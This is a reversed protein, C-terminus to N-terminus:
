TRDHCEEAKSSKELNLMNIDPEENLYPESVLTQIDLLRRNIDAIRHAESEIIKLRNKTREDLDKNKYLLYEINGTIVSLPNNIEHNISVALQKAVMLREDSIKQEQAKELQKRAEILASNKNELQKLYIMREISLAMQTGLISFLKIDKNRFAQNESSIYVVVGILVDEVALPVVLVPNEFKDRLDERDTLVLPERKTNIWAYFDEEKDFYDQPSFREGQTVVEVLHGSKPNKLFIAAASFPIVQGIINLAKSFSAKDSPDDRFVSSVEAMLGIKTWFRTVQTDDNERNM